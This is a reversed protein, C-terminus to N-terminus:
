LSESQSLCNCVIGKQWDDPVERLDLHKKPLIDAAKQFIAVQFYKWTDTNRNSNNHDKEIEYSKKLNLQNIGTSREQNSM